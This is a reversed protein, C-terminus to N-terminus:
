LSLEPGTMSNMLTTRRDEDRETGPKPLRTLSAFCLSTVLMESSEIYHARPWITLKLM